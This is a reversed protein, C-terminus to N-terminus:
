AAPCTELRAIEGQLSLEDNLEGFAPCRWLGLANRLDDVCAAPDRDLEQWGKLALLEFERADLEGSEVHIRYGGHAGDLRDTGIAMRLRYVYSQLTSRAAEPPEDGLVDDILVNRSVVENPRRILHALVLRQKRGGLRIPEGRDEVEIPGLIMFRM